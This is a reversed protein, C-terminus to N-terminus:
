LKKKLIEIAKLIAADVAKMFTKRYGFSGEFKDNLVDILQSTWLIGDSSGLAYVSICLGRDLLWDFVEAYTPIRYRVGDAWGPEGPGPIYFAPASDYVYYKHLPMGSKLLKKAKEESVIATYYKTM